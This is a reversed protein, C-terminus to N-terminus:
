YDDNRPQGLVVRLDRPSLTEAVVAAAEAAEEDFYEGVPMSRAAGPRSDILTWFQGQSGEFWFTEIGGAQKKSKRKTAM